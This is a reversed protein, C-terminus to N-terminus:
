NMLFDFNNLDIVNSNTPPIYVNIIYVDTNFSFLTKGFKVCFIGYQNTEVIEVKKALTQRYYISLGGSYRGKKVNQTKNGYVHFCDYGKIDLNVCTSKSLWTETFFVVDYKQVTEIFDPDLLKRSLGKYEM